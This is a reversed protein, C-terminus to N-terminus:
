HDFFTKLFFSKPPLKDRGKDTKMISIGGSRKYPVPCWLIHMYWFIVWVYIKPEFYHWRLFGLWNWKGMGKLSSLAEQIEGAPTRSGELRISIVRTCGSTMWRCLPQSTKYMQKYMCVKKLQQACPLNVMEMIRYIIM